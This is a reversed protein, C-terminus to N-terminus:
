KQAQEKSLIAMEVKERRKKDRTPIDGTKSMMSYEEDDKLMM